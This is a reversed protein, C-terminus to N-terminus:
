QSTSDKAIVLNHMVSDKQMNNKKKLDDQKKLQLSKNAEAKKKKKFLGNILDNAKNKIDETTKKASTSDKKAGSNLVKELASTGQKMLKDKQQNVLQNTLNALASKM